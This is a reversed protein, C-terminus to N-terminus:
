DASGNTVFGHWGCGGTLLVSHAVPPVGPVFTLDDLGSGEPTWRGPGPPRQDPVRRGRFWCKVSHTGTRGANTKFCKPCLFIIGQATGLDDVIEDTRDDVVRLLRADLERLTPV